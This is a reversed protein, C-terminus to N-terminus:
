SGQSISIDGGGTTATIKYPSRSNQPVADSVTGGATSTQVDYQITGNQPVVVTINGGSTNIHLNKPPRTFTLTVDGGGTSANVDPSTLVNGTINGGSTNLQLDGPLGTATVDGGGTSMTVNGTLGSATLNGGSSSLSLATRAPVKLTAALYCNGAPVQCDFNGSIGDATPTWTLKPRILSYHVTGNLSAEGSQGGPGATLDGGGTNLSVHGATVPITEHVSYSGQGAEAVISFGTWGILALAIPVGVALTALRAPTLPLASTMATM